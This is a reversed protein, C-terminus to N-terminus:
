YIAWCGPTILELLHSDPDRFYLSAGGRPWEVRSEIAVDNQALWHRWHEEDTADITFALHMQGSAGHGPIRGGPITVPEATAGKRFLLLVQRGSVNLACFRHDSSLKPFGFIRQYFEMSRDVDDVNLCTELVSGVPPM